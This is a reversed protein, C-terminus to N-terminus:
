RGDGGEDDRAGAGTTRDDGRPPSDAAKRKAAADLLDAVTQLYARAAGAGGREQAVGLGSELAERFVKLAQRKAEPRQRKRMGLDVLRFAPPGRLPDTAAIAQRGVQPDAALPDPLLAEIAVRLAGGDPTGGRGAHTALVRALATLVPAEVTVTRERSQRRGELLDVARAVQELETHVRDDEETWYWADRAEEPVSGIAGAPVSLSRPTNSYAPHNFCLLGFGEHTRLGHRRAEIRALAAQLAARDIEEVVFGIASGEAVAIEGPRPLGVTSNWGQFLVASNFAQRETVSQPDIGEEALLRRLWALDLGTRYAGWADREILPTLLTLTIPEDAAIERGRLPKPCFATPVITEDATAVPATALVRVRCAGRARRTRKGLLLTVEGAFPMQEVETFGLLARLADAPGVVEAIFRAGRAIVATTFLDGQRAAGRTYDIALHIQVEAPPDFAGGGSVPVFGKGHELAVGEGDESQCHAMRGDGPALRAAGGWAENMRAIGHGSGPVWRRTHKCSLLDLPTPIAPLVGEGPSVPLVSPDAPAGAAVTVTRAPYAPTVQIRGDLVADLLAQGGRRAARVALAGSLAPGPISLVSELENGAQPRRAFLLPEDAEILLVLRITDGTLGIGPAATEADPLGPAKGTPAAGLWASRLADLLRQSLESTRQAASWQSGSPPDFYNSGILAVDALSIECRGIDRSGGAGLDAIQRAAAYLLAAEAVAQAPPRETSLPVDFTLGEIAHERTFLHGRQARRLRTDVATRTVPRSGERGPRWGGAHPGVEVVRGTGTRWPSSTHATGFIRCCPCADGAATFPPGGCPPFHKSLAPHDRLLRWLEQRLRGAFRWGDLRPVGDPDRDLASDFTEGLSHGAGLHGDTILLVRLMLTLTM